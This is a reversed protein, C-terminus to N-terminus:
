GKRSRGKSKPASETQAPAADLDAFANEMDEIEEQSTPADAGDADTTEAPILRSELFNIAFTGIEDDGNAVLDGQETLMFHKPFAMALFNTVAQFKEDTDADNLKRVILQLFTTPQLRGSAESKSALLIEALKGTLPNYTQQRSFSTLQGVEFSNELVTAGSLVVADVGVAGAIAIRRRVIPATRSNPDMRVPHTAGRDYNAFVYGGELVNYLLKGRGTLQSEPRGANSARSFSIGSM